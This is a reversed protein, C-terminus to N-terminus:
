CGSIGGATCIETQSLARSYVRVSDINGVFRSSPNNSTDFLAGVAAGINLSTDVPDGNTNGCQKTATASGNRFTYMCLQPENYTCAVLAWENIGTAGGTGVWIDDTTKVLCVVKGADDIALAAQRNGLDFVGFRQGSAPLGARQVWASITVQQSDFDSSDPVLISTGSAIGVARSTAPVDRTTQTANAVSADHAGTSGDRATGLTPDEFELCLELASDSTACTIQAPPGDPSPPADDSARGDGSSGDVPANSADGGLPAPEFSCSALLLLAVVAPRM